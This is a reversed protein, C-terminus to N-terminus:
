EGDAPTGADLVALRALELEVAVDSLAAAIQQREGPSFETAESLSDELQRAVRQLEALNASLSM